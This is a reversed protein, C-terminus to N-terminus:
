ATRPQISGEAGVPHSQAALSKWPEIGLVTFAVLGYTTAKVARMRSLWRPLFRLRMLIFIIGGFGFLLFAKM